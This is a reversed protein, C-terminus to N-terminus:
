IEIIHCISNENSKGYGDGIYSFYNGVSSYDKSIGMQNAIISGCTMDHRHNSSDGHFYGDLMSQKWRQFFEMGTRNTLDIGTFGASFMEMANAEERTIGFYQLTQENSWQGVSYGSDEMFFGKEDIWDFIPKVNKVFTVSADLWLIQEYGLNSLFDFAYIKFAYPNEHHKPSGVIREGAFRLFDCESYSGGFEHFSQILRRQAKIYREDESVVNVIARNKKM